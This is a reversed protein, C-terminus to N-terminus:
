VLAYLAWKCFLMHLDMFSMYCVLMPAVAGLGAPNLVVGLASPQIEVPTKIAAHNIGLTHAPAAAGWGWLSLLLCVPCPVPLSDQQQGKRQKPEVLAASLHPAPSQLPAAAQLLPATGVLALLVALEVRSGACPLPLHGM